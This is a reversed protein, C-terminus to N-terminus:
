SAPRSPRSPVFRDFVRSPVPSPFLFCVPRSPVPCLPRPIRSPVPRGFRRGAYSQHRFRHSVAVKIEASWKIYYNFVRLTISTNGADEISKREERLGRERNKRERQERQIYADTIEIRPERTTDQGPRCM